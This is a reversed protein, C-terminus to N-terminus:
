FTLPRSFLHVSAVYTREACLPPVESMPEHAFVKKDSPLLAVLPRGKKSPLTPTIMPPCGIPSPM